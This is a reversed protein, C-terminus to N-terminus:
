QIIKVSANDRLTEYGKTILREGSSLGSRVEIFYTNALGTVVRRVRAVNKDVVFVYQNNGRGRVIEKPIVITNTHRETEIDAKVFMGPKLILDNNPIKVVGTFTRTDTSIAPSIETLIGILTDNALTNNLINVQMGTRLVSLNKEPLNVEMYLASYDMIAMVETGSAIKVDPTAYPLSVITGNFPATVSMKDLSINANEYNYEANIYSIEADKLERFTVGGKEYLSKQKDYEQKAIELDLKVSKIKVENQYAKNVFKIIVDGKAVADGLAYPKGTTKNKQLQYEGEIESLLTAEKLPIVTGSTNIFSSISDNKLELVSVPSELTTNVNVEQYNCATLMISFLAAFQILSKINKM